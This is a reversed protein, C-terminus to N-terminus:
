DGGMLIRASWFAAFGLILWGTIEFLLCHGEFESIPIVIVNGGPVPFSIDSWKPCTRPFGMGSGDFSDPTLVRQGVLGGFGGPGDGPDGVGGDSWGSELDDRLGDVGDGIRDIGDGLGDISDGLGGLGDVLGDISDGLGDLNGLGEGIRDIGDGIRDLQDGVEADNILSDCRSRWQQYLMSCTVGDSNCVPPVDCQFGGGGTDPPAEPDSPEGTGPAEPDPPLDNGGPAEPIANTGNCSEGTGLAEYIYGDADPAGIFVNYRCSLICASGTGSPTPAKFGPVVEDVVCQDPEDDELFSFRFVGGGSGPNSSYPISQDNFYGRVDSTRTCQPYTSTTRGLDLEFSTESFESCSSILCPVFFGGGYPGRAIWANEAASCAASAASRTPFAGVEQAHAPVCFALGLVGVLLCGFVRAFRVMRDHRNVLELSFM